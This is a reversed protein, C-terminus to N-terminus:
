IFPILCFLFILLTSIKEHLCGDSRSNICRHSYNIVQEAQVLVLVLVLVAAGLERFEADKVLVEEILFLCDDRISCLPSIEATARM